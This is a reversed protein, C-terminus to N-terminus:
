NVKKELDENISQIQMLKNQDLEEENKKIENEQSKIKQITKLL